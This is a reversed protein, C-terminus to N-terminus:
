LLFCPPTESVLIEDKQLIVSPQRRGAAVRYDAAPTKRLIVFVTGSVTEWCRARGLRGKSSKRTVVVSKNNDGAPAPTLVPRFPSGNRRNLLIWIPGNTGM